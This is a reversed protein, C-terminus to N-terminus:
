CAHVQRQDQRRKKFKGLAQMYQEVSQTPYEGLQLIIDGTQIGAKKAPRGDSIGDVRVGNGSYSYDPMIGMTVSFRTTTGTQQERTKTFALKNENGTNKVVQEILQLIRYQGEYNIKGADDGPKHYDTHLGTFYFLIRFSFRWTYYVHRGPTKPLQTVFM